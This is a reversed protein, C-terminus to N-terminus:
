EIEKPIGDAYVLERTVDPTGILLVFDVVGGAGGCGARAGAAAQRM